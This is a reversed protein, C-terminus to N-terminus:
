KKIAPIKELTVEIVEIMEKGKLTKTKKREERIKEIGFYSTQELVKNALRINKERYQIKIQDKLMIKRMIDGFALKIMEVIREQPTLDEERIHKNIRGAIVYIDDDKKVM